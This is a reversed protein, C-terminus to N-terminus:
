EEDESDDLFGTCVSYNEFGFDGGFSQIHFDKKIEVWIGLNVNSEVGTTWEKILYEPIIALCGADVCLKGVMCGNLELCYLGDGFATSTTFFEHKNDIRVIAGNTDKGLGHADPYCADVFEGWYKDPFVYCPDVVMYKGAPFPKYIPLFEIKM